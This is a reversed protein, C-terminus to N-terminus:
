EVRINMARVIPVWRARQAAGFADASEPTSGALNEAGYGDLRQRIDAMVQERSRESARLDVDIEAAHVGEAHEDLEARGTRRGFNLVGKVNKIREDVMGAIANSTELSTGPPLLVNVQVCGENFPPLCDRGLQTVVGVSVAVAAAVALWDM